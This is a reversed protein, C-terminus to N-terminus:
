KDKGREIFDPLKKVIIALDEKVNGLKPTSNVFFTKTGPYACFHRLRAPDVLSNLLKELESSLDAGKWLLVFQKGGVDVDRRHMSDAGDINARRLWSAAVLHAEGKINKKTFINIFFRDRVGLLLSIPLYLLSNRANVTYTGKARSWTGSLAYSFNYGISGGINVYNTATPRLIEELGKSMTSVIWRNKRTGLFYQATAAVALIILAVLAYPNM